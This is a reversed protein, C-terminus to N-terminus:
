FRREIKTAIRKVADRTEKLIDNQEKLYRMKTAEIENREDMLCVVAKQYGVTYQAQNINCRAHLSTMVGMVIM